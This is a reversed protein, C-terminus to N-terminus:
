MLLCMGGFPSDAASDEQSGSYRLFRQAAQQLFPNNLATSPPSSTPSPSSEKKHVQFPKVDDTAVAPPATNQLQQQLHSLQTFSLM